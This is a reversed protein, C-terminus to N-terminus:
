VNQWEKCFIYYVCYVKLARAISNVMDLELRFNKLWKAQIFAEYCAIFEDQMTSSINLMQKTSKWSIACESLLIIYGSTLKIDDACGVFDLDLYGIHELNEM